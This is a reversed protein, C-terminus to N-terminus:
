RAGFSPVISSLYPGECATARVGPPNKWAKVPASSIMTLESCECPISLRCGAQADLGDCGIPLDFRHAQRLRPKDDAHM